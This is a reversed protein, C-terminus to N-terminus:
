ILCMDVHLKVHGSRQILSSGAAHCIQRDTPVLEKDLRILHLGRSIM